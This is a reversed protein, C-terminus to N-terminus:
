TLHVISNNDPFNKNCLVHCIEDVIVKMIINKRLNGLLGYRFQKAMGDIRISM